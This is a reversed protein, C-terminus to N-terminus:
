LRGRSSIMSGGRSRGLTQTLAATRACATGQVQQPQMTQARHQKQRQNRRQQQTQNMGARLLTTVAQAAAASVSVAPVQWTLMVQM